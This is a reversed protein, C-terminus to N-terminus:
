WEEVFLRIHFNVDNAPDTCEQRIVVVVELCDVVVSSVPSRISMFVSPLNEIELVQM